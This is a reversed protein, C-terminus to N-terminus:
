QQEQDMDIIEDGTSIIYFRPKKFVKIKSISLAAMVGMLEHAIKGERKLALSGKIDDGKFIINEGQVIPKYILLTNEDM